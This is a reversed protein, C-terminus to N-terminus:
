VGYARYQLSYVTRRISYVWYIYLAFQEIYQLIYAILIDHVRFITM